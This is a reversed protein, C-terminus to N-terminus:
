TVRHCVVCVSVCVRIPPDAQCAGLVLVVLARLARSRTCVVGHCACLASAHVCRHRVRVVSRDRVEMNVERGAKVAALTERVKTTTDLKSRSQAVLLRELETRM